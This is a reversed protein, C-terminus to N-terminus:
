YIIKVHFHYSIMYLKVLFLPAHNHGTTITIYNVARIMRHDILQIRISVYLERIIIIKMIIKIIYIYINTVSYFINNTCFLVASLKPRLDRIFM